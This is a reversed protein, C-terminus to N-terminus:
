HHRHVYATLVLDPGAHAVTWDGIPIAESLREIGEGGIAPIERGGLIRPAVFAVIKDIIGATLANFALDPGCELLFSQIERTYLETSLQGLSGRFILADSFETIRKRRDLIVRLLPRRRPLGSRDTLQPNDALVTGSGTVLADCRHRLRHVVARSEESTIWRSEGHRTAIKGDLTMAIKLTGFPRGQSKYITFAENLQRAERELVGCEVTIGAARLMELGRGNVEPNPDTMATVVRAVGADILAKACASTRGRTPRHCCPELNTYVTSGQAAPGAQELAIVEAHRIGDYTYFGEGVIRGDKVVVCGVMVGPSTLGAGKEALELTRRIYNQPREAEQPEKKV